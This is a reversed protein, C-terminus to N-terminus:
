IMEVILQRDTDRLSMMVHFYCREFVNTLYMNSDFSSNELEDFLLDVNQDITQKYLRGISSDTDSCKYIKYIHEKLESAPIKDALLANKLNSYKSVDCMDPIKKLIYLYYNLILSSIIGPLTNEVAKAAWRNISVTDILIDKYEHFKVFHRLYSQDKERSPRMIDIVIGTYKRGVRSYAQIYEATSGPIGYFCMLNLRDADVGHSIMSTAAIMNFDIDEIVSKAHEISSLTMRVEQFSDDGTMKKVVLPQISEENLETNIPDEIAQLVRNGEFKVNNYELILWYEELMRKVEAIREENTGNIEIGPFTLVVEPKDYLNWIVRKLYQLSYAVSNIISKGFPAYGIIIRGIDNKDVFSYFNHDLYPSATPFRIANKWYLNKAQEAYASITATAGIVKIGRNCGSLNKIFYEILTEYHSDYTGLSEKILHLEDQIMLTPAPDKMNIRKFEDPGYQCDMVLCKNKSTFGHQPCEFEAGCLINHFNSNFGITTMKDVTSIIVSPLYRYIDNDVMYLPIIGFSACGQNVCVHRLSNIEADYIVHVSEKGCFPCIDILRYNNDISDQTLNKLTKQLDKGIINPTNGEGVYYGLSFPSGEGIKERRIIEAIALIDSVRQVQQVSLLRLPYKLIATVGCKKDRLRDFFLNFVLIGLFAETKGGGTPFYLIDVTDTKAKNKFNDDLMLDHENAVIDLILSVIFVIQFLRWSDYGKKKGIEKFTQNMFRFADCVMNYKNILDIGTKFRNIEVTFADIEYSFQKIGKETLSGKVNLPLVSRREFDSKWLALEVQMQEFIKELTLVPNIILDDFRIAMKDNTKLRNQIFFPVHTTQIEMNVNDYNVNCNNGIAYVFRDYKYDDAFYDLEIPIFETNVCRINLGSNFLTNIRYKDAKSLTQGFGSSEDGFPTENILAVTVNLFDDRGKLNVNLSFDFHPFMDLEEHKKQNEIYTKWTNNSLLDDIKLKDRFMCPIVNPRNKVETCIAETLKKVKIFFESNQPISGCDYASNYIDAIRISLFDHNRDIAIKEYVPLLQVKHKTMEDPLTGSKYVKVLSDFNDYKEKPNFTAVFNKLFFARQQELSPLVRFFFNGQPYIQLEAISIDKKPIRFDLSIQKILVKSSINNMESQPSLKGVYISDDPNNMIWQNKDTGSIMAVFRDVINKALIERNNAMHKGDKKM